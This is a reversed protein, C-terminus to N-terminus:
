YKGGVQKKANQVVIDKIMNIKNEQMNNILGQIPGFM